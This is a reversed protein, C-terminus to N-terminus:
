WLTAQSGTARSWALSSTPLGAIRLVLALAGGGGLIDFSGGQKITLADAM